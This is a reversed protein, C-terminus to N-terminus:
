KELERVAHSLVTEGYILSREPHFQFGIVADKSLASVASLQGVKHTMATFDMETDTIGFDHMFYFREDGTLSLWDNKVLKPTKWGMVPGDSGQDDQIRKSTFDLLGLGKGPGEESDIGLLQMGLCIGILAGGSKVHTLVTERLNNKDLAGSGATFHGV